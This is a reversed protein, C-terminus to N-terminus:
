NRKWFMPMFLVLVAYIELRGLIMSLCLLLKAGGPIWGYHLAACGALSLWLWLGVEVISELAADTPIGM